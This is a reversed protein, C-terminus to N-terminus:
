TSGAVHPAKGSEACTKALPKGFSKCQDASKAPCNGTVNSTHGCDACKYTVLARSVERALPTECKECDGAKALKTKCVECTYYVKECAEASATAGFCKPCADKAATKKVLETSCKACKGASAAVTKCAECAYYTAGSALEKRDLLAKDKECYHAKVVTKLDCAGQASTVGSLVLPTLLLFVSVLKM